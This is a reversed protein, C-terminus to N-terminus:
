VSADQTACAHASPSSMLMFHAHKEVLVRHPSRQSVLLLKPFVLRLLARLKNCYVANQVWHHKM